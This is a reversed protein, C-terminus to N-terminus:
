DRKKVPTFTGFLRDWWDVTVGYNCITVKHHANHRRAFHPFVWQAHHQMWHVAFFSVYWIVWGAFYAQDYPHAILWCCFYIVAFYTPIQWLPFRTNELPRQHHRQHIAMWYPGHLVWRHIIYEAFTGTFWGLVLFSFWVISQGGPLSWPAAAYILYIALAPFTIWDVYEELFHKVRLM